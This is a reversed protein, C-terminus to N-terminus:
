RAAFISDKKKIVFSKTFFNEGTVSQHQKEALEMAM